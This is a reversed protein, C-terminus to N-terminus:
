KLHLCNFDFMKEWEKDSWFMMIADLFYGVQLGHWDVKGSLIFGEGVEPNEFM